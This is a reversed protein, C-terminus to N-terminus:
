TGICNRPGASFPVYGFPHRKNDPLFREPIFEHPEPYFEPDMHLHQICIVVSSGAPVVVDGTLLVFVLPRQSPEGILQSNVRV